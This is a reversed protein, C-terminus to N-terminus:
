RKKRNTSSTARPAKAASIGYGVYLPIFSQMTDEGRRPVDEIRLERTIGSRTEKVMITFFHKDGNPEVTSRGNTNGIFSVHSEHNIVVPTTEAVIPTYNNVFGGLVETKGGGRTEFSTHEGETKFGMVWLTSNINEVAPEGYEPNIWRAWVQQGTFTFCSGLGTTPKTSTGHIRNSVNEIYVKAGPTSNEYMKARQAHLDSMVLTRRSAHDFWHHKGAGDAWSFLDEVVLSASTTGVIKFAGMGKGNKLSEGAKFQVYMFNVRKVSAPIIVPNNILYNGPKFYVVNKGSNMASQIATTDDTKGDGKAGFENVSVWQRADQEWPSDPTEEIPLNLSALRQPAFLSNVKHLSYEGVYPDAVAIADAKRISSGYGSTRINRAFLVGAQVEIAANSKAGVLHSDILVVCGQSGTIRIAPVTNRSKLDRISTGSDKVTIGAVQQNSLTVHDFAIGMETPPVLNIGYDFGDITLNKVYGMTSGAPIHLGTSGRKNPDGSKITVNRIAGNNAGHYLLGTSGPNGRGTDITINEFFNSAVANGFETKAFSVVPKNSGAAFGSANDILKIITGAESQGRFRVRTCNEGASGKVTQIAGSYIITDSVKYTGNPLYLVHYNTNMVDTYAKVLAATSDRAGTNDANYPAKTVDVVGGGNAVFAGDPYVINEAKVPPYAAFLTIGVLVVIVFRIKERM